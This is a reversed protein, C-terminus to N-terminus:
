ADRQGPAPKPLPQPRRPQCEGPNRECMFLKARIGAEEADWLAKVRRDHKGSAHDIGIWLLVPILMLGITIAARAM